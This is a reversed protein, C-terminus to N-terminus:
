LNRNRTNKKNSEFNKKTSRYVSLPILVLFVFAFISTSIPDSTVSKEFMGWHVLASMAASIFSLATLLIVLPKRYTLIYMLNLYEKFTLKTKITM